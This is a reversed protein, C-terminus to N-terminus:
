ISELFFLYDFIFVHPTELAKEPELFRECQLGDVLVVAFVEFTLGLM